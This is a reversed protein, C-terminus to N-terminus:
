AVEGRKWERLGRIASLVAEHRAERVAAQINAITIWGTPKRSRSLVM